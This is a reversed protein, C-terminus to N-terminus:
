VKQDGSKSRILQYIEDINVHKNIANENSYWAELFERACKTNGRNLIKVNDWDFQHGHDDSHISVLSNIDHRKVASKHEQIRIRLPRGSQGIYHKNCNVCNIKYITNIKDGKEIPDKPKCLISNLSEAPKHAVDIDFPKMIRATIESINRIYPLIFQKKTKPSPEKNTSENSKLCKKIFNKPYGNKKFVTQLYKEEM